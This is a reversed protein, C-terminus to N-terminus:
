DRKAVIWITPYINIGLIRWLKLSINYFIHHCVLLFGSAVFYPDLSEELITFGRTTLLRRLVPSSFHSLHVEQQLDDLIIREYGASCFRRKSVPRLKDLLFRIKSLLCGCDNPVAIVIVGEPELLERCNDILAGPQPVHELVHFLTIVSFRLSGWDTGVGDASAIALGYRKRAIERAHASIETGYVKAVKGRISHLFQGIGTGADLLAGVGVFRSMKLWRRHWLKDREPEHSLWGAYQDDREYFAAIEQNTPRPSHFLYGCKCLCLAGDHNVVEIADSGCVGCQSLTEPM